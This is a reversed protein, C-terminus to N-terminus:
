IPLPPIHVHEVGPHVGVIVRCGEADGSVRELEVAETRCQCKDVLLVLVPRVHEQNVARRAQLEVVLILPQRLTAARDEILVHHLLVRHVLAAVVALFRLDLEVLRCIDPATQEGLAGHAAEPASARLHRKPIKGSPASRPTGSRQVGADVEEDPERERADRSTARPQRLFLGVVDLGQRATRGGGQKIQRRGEALDLRAAVVPARCYVEPENARQLQAIIGDVKEREQVVGGHALGEIAEECQQGHDHGHHPIRELHPGENSGASPISRADPVLQPHLAHLM